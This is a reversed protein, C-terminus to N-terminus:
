AALSGGPRFDDGGSEPPADASSKARMRMAELALEREQAMRERALAMEADHKRMALAMEERVRFEAIAQDARIKIAAIDQDAAVKRAAQEADIRATAEALQAKHTLEAAQMQQKQQLEAAQLQSKAEVEAIKPDPGPAAPKWGEPIDRFFPRADRYGMAQVMQALTNRYEAPGSLPNDIGAQSMIAEQKTAISGLYVLKRERSEATMGVHVSVTMDDAIARPDLQVRRGSVKFVIPAHEHRSVLRLLKGFVRELADGAYRAIQEVRANGAAQLSEIGKATDTIAKPQIGMAHRNIGSAEESRRDWYEVAQLASASVDPTTQVMVVDAPRGKVRVVDGIDHDMLQEAVAGDPDASEDVYTRPATSESLSDMARRTLVTRIKQIDLLTDALGLGIARHAVRIPSWITLESEEVVENELIVDGCRVVRRLEVIGDADYDCRVFEVHVDVQRRFEDGYTGNRGIEHEDPFRAQRRQDMELDTESGHGYDGSPDLEWAKDPYITVLEALYERFQAGHYRAAEISTAQPSIRFCEPAVAEVVYRGVSPTKQIRAAFTMGALPMAAPEMVSGGAPMSFLGAPEPTMLPGGSPTVATQQSQAPLDAMGTAEVELVLYDPDRSYRVLQDVTLGEVIVPASPRPAEYAVRMIGVRQLLGDFIFDHLAETGKSKKFFLWALFQGIVALQQDDADARESECAILDDSPAFTRMLAPMTWNITDRIDSTVVKSRNPLVMDDRLKGHYADMATAQASALESTYYTSAQDSEEKLIRVLDDETMGAAQQTPQGLMDPLVFQQM